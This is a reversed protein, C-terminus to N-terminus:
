QNVHTLSESKGGVEIDTFGECIRIALFERPGFLGDAASLEGVSVCAAAAPM